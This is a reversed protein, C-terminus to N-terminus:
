RCEIGVGRRSLAREVEAPDFRVYRGVMRKPIRDARAESAVWSAKVKLFEAMQKITLLGMTQNAPGEEQIQIDGAVLAASALAAQAAAAQGQLAAITRVPLGVARGPDRVIEDLSPVAAIRQEIAPQM